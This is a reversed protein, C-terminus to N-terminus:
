QAIETAPLKAARKTTVEIQRDLRRLYKTLRDNSIDSVKGGLLKSVQPQQVDLVQAVQKPTLKRRDIEKVIEALLKHKLELVAAEEPSFGLDCWLTDATSVHTPKTTTAKPTKAM